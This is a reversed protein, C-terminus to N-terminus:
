RHRLRLAHDVGQLAPQARHAIFDLRRPLLPFRAPVLRLVLLSLFIQPLLFRPLQLFIFITSALLFWFFIFSIFSIRDPMPTSTHRWDSTPMSMSTSSVPVVKSSFERSFAFATMSADPRGAM